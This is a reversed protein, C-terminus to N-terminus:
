QSPPHKWALEPQMKDYDHIFSCPKRTAICKVSTPPNTQWHTVPCLKSVLKRAKKLHSGSSGVEVLTSSLISNQLLWISVTDHDDDNVHDDHYFMTCDNWCDTDRKLRAHLRWCQLLDFKILIWFVVSVVLNFCLLFCGVFVFFVIINIDLVCNVLFM